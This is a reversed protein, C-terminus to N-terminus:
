TSGCAAEWGSASRSTTARWCSPERRWLAIQVSVPGRTLVRARLHGRGRPGDTRVTFAARGGRGAALVEIDTRSM